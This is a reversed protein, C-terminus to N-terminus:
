KSRFKKRKRRFGKELLRKMTKEGLVKGGVIEVYYVNHFGDEMGCSNRGSWTVDVKRMTKM